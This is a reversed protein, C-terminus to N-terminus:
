KDVKTFDKGKFVHRANGRQICNHEDWKTQKFSSDNSAEQDQILERLRQMAIKVNRHQSRESQSVACLGTQLHTIRVASETKNVHQGGPGSARMREVRVDDTDLRKGPQPEIVSVSVFWNRRKHNKRFMSQGIWQATGAWDDVFRTVGSAGEIAMLFSKCTNPVDGPIVEVPEAKLGAENAAQTIYEALRRVVWQCEAPGRGSTIQLLHKM